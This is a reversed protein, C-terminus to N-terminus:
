TLDV